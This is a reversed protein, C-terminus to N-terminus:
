AFFFLGTWIFPDIDILMVVLHALGRRRPLWLYTNRHRWRCWKRRVDEPGNCLGYSRGDKRSDVAGCPSQSRRHARMCRLDGHDTALAQLRMAASFPAM